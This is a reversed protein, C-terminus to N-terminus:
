PSSEPAIVPGGASTPAGSLRAGQPCGTTPRPGQCYPFQGPLQAGHKQSHAFRTLVGAPGDEQPAHLNPMAHVNQSQEKESCFPPPEWTLGQWGM